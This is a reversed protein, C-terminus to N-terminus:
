QNKGGVMALVREWHEATAEEDARLGCDPSSFRITFLERFNELTLPRREVSTMLPMFAEWHCQVTDWLGGCSNLGETFQSIM